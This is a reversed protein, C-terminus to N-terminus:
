EEDYVVRTVTTTTTTVTTTYPKSCCAVRDCTQSATPNV